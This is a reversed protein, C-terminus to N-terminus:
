DLRNVDVINDRRYFLSYYLVIGGCFAGWFIDFWIADVYFTCWMILCELTIALLVGIYNKQMLFRDTIM